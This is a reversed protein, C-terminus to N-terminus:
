ADPREPDLYRAEAIVAFAGDATQVPSLSLDLAQEVGDMRRVRAPARYPKGALCDAVARELVAATGAPDGSWFPLVAFPQGIPDVWEPLLRRAAPNMELVRGDPSLLAMAQQAHDFASRFRAESHELAARAANRPRLDRLHASFVLGQDVTIKTISAELPIEEGDRSLGCIEGRQGMLRAPAPETAFRRMFDEHAARFREPLLEALPRGVLTGPAYGFLREASANAYSIRLDQDVNIIGDASIALVRAALRHAARTRQERSQAESVDELLVLYARADTPLTGVRVRVPKEVGREDRCMLRVHQLEPAEPREAWRRLWALPDLRVREEEPLYDLINRGLPPAPAALLGAAAGNGYVIVGDADIVLGPQPMADLLARASLEDLQM